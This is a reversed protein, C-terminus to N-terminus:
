GTTAHGHGENLDAACWDFEHLDIVLRTRVPLWGSRCQECPEIRRQSFRAIDAHRTLDDIRAQDRRLALAVGLVLLLAM